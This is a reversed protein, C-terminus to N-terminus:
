TVDRVLEREALQGLYELVDGRVDARYKEGLEDAIDAVTRQGNCLGLIEGATDSLLLAGEPYLLVRRERVPDYEVRAFKWLAPRSAETLPM